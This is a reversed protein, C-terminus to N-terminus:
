LATEMQYASNLNSLPSAREDAAFTSTLGRILLSLSRYSLAVCHILEQNNAIMAAYDKILQRKGRVRHRVKSEGTSIPHGSESSKQRLANFSSILPMARFFSM